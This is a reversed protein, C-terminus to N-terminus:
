TKTLENFRAYADRSTIEPALARPTVALAILMVSLKLAETVHVGSFYKSM